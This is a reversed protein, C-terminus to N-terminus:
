FPMGRETMTLQDENIAKTLALLVTTKESASLAPMLARLSEVDRDTWERASRARAILADAERLAAAAEPTQVSPTQAHSAPPSAVAESRPQPALAIALALEGAVAKREESDLTARVPVPYAPPPRVSALELALAKREEPALAVHPAPDREGSSSSPQGALSVGVFAGALAGSFAILWVLAKHLVM